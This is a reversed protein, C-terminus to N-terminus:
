ACRISINMSLINNVYRFKIQRVRLFDRFIKAMIVYVNGDGAMTDVLRAKGCGPPEYLLNTFGVLKFSKAEFHLDSIALINM